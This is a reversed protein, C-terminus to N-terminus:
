LSRSQKKYYKNLFNMAERWNKFKILSRFKKPFNEILKRIATEKWLSLAQEDIEQAQKVQESTALAKKMTKYKLTRIFAVDEVVTGLLQLCDIQVEQLLLIVKGINLMKALLKYTLAGLLFWMLEHM